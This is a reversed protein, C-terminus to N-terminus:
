EIALLDDEKMILFKEGDITIETGAWETFIVNDGAKVQMPVVKGKKNRNGTGVFVVKGRKPRAKSATDPIIIGSSTKKETEAVKIVIRNGTPALKM